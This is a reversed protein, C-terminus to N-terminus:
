LTGSHQEHNEMYSYVHNLAKELEKSQPMTSAIKDIFKKKKARAISWSFNLDFIWSIQMLKLDNLRKIMNTRVFQKQCVAEVAKLSIKDDDALGLNIAKENDAEPAAYHNTVVRWIDLKDADRLLRIFFLSTEDKGRPLDAANHFKISNKILEKEDNTCFALMNKKEIERLGLAAHDESIKDLFTNYEKFQRFRGIDHLLATTEALLMQENSLCLEKGLYLSEKCVRL